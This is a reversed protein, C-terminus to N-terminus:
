KAKETINFKYSPKLDSSVPYMDSGDFEMDRMYYEVNISDKSLDMTVFGNAALTM